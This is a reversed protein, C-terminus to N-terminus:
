SSFKSSPVMEEPVPKLVDETDITPVNIARSVQYSEMAEAPYHTLLPHLREPEVIDPNLWTEEDEKRLIVPMRPHIKAVLSNAETTIITYSHIEKGSTPDHWIDYLGAFAFIPNDKVFFAYPISPKQSKDWEYFNTAPVLCRQTRFPKKYTPKSEIGEARANITKYKFSDDKAFFPILGWFMREINNPSHKLVVPNLQGPAINYRPHYEALTNVVEFREYVKKAHKVSFGYRGCM